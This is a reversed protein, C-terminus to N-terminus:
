AHSNLAYGNDQSKLALSVINIFGVFAGIRSECQRSRCGAKLWAEVGSFGLFNALTAGEQYALSLQEVLLRNEGAITDQFRQMLDSPVEEEVTPHHYHKLTDEKAKVDKCTVPYNLFHSLTECVQGKALYVYYHYPIFIFQNPNFASLYRQVQRGYLSYWLPLMVNGQEFEDITLRVDETFSDGAYFPMTMKENKSHYWHSQMRALPERFNVIFRVRKSDAGLYHSYYVELARAM